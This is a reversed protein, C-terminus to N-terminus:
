RLMGWKKGHAIEVQESWGGAATIEAEEAKQAQRKLSLREDPPLSLFNESSFDLVNSNASETSTNKMAFGKGQKGFLFKFM